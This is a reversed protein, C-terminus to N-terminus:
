REANAEPGGVPQPRPRLLVMLIALTARILYLVPRWFGAHMSRGAPRPHFIAEVEAFRIGARYLMLLVNADPYDEPFNESTYFWLARRGIAQFGSMPDRIRRGTLLWVLASLYSHGARQLASWAARGGGQRYRSGLVVDARGEIIPRILDAISAPDHQGDADLLVALDYGKREAFTLGTKIACGYGCNFPMTVVRAGARRAVEATRDTSGDNVVLWDFMPCVQRLRSFLTGLTKEENLAPIVILGRPAAGATVNPKEGQVIGGEM